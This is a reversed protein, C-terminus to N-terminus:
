GAVAGAGPGAAAAAGPGAAALTCVSIPPSSTAERHRTIHRVSADRIHAYSDPSLSHYFMHAFLLYPSRLKEDSPNCSQMYHPSRTAAFGTAAICVCFTYCM